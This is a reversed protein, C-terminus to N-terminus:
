GTVFFRYVLYALLLVIIITRQTKATKQNEIIKNLQNEFEKFDNNM